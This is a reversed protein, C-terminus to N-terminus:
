AVDTRGAPRAAGLIKARAESLEEETFAGHAEQHRRLDEGLLQHRIQRAVAEAVYGSVNDTLKRLEAVQETPLTVTIRTTGSM